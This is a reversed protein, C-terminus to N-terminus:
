KITRKEPEAQQAQDRRERDEEGSLDKMLANINNDEHDKM